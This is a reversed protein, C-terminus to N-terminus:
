LYAVTLTITGTYSGTAATAPPSVTGSIGITLNGVGDIATIFPATPDFTTFSGPWPSWLLGDSAGFSIPITGSSGTLVAPLTFSVTVSASPEGTINFRGADTALSGPAGPSGAPVIGFDLDAVGVATIPAFGDVFATAAISVSATSQARTEPALAVLLLATLATVLRRPQM